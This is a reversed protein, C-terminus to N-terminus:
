SDDTDEKNIDEKQLYRSSGGDPDVIVFKYGEQMLSDLRWMFHVCDFVLQRKSIDEDYNKQLAVLKDRFSKPGSFSYRM